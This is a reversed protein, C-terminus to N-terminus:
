RLRQKPLWVKAFAGVSKPMFGDVNKERILKNNLRQGESSRKLTCELARVQPTSEDHRREEYVLM